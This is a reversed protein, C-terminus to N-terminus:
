KTTNDKDDNITHQDIIKQLDPAEWGEPKIVDLSSGRKSQMDNVVREKKMNAKHVEDWGKKFPLNMMHATGLVVYALDVLGDFFGELDTNYFARLCEELEEQMFDLRFRMDIDNLFKPNGAISLKFKDHFEKIDEEM